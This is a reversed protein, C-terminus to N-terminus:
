DPRKEYITLKLPYAFKSQNGVPTHFDIERWLVQKDSAVISAHQISDCTIKALNNFDRERNDPWWVEAEVVVKSKAYFLPIKALNLRLISEALWVKGEDTM